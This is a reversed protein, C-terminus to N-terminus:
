SRWRQDGEMGGAMVVPTLLAAIVKAAPIDADTYRGEESCLNMAGLCKGGFRIPVNMISGIGLSAILAHDSFADRVEESNRAIFVRGQDLVTEGWRTGLKPKRGGVPYAAPNSSYLREVEGSAALHRNVTFLIHGIIRQALAEVARYAAQADDVATTEMVAAIDRDTLQGKARTM